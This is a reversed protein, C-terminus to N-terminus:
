QKDASLIVFKKNSALQRCNGFIRKLKIHYSLQRNGVITLTKDKKLVRYSDNFMQWAIHDTVANQQHFPPNCIIMDASNSEFGTLCDNVVFQCQKTLEPLNIAVNEQASRIAMFSEDTFSLKARPQQLLINLGLIGNGCGLDIVHQNPLAKPLYELLFRAGIDLKERAFVNAYNRIRLNTDETVWQLYQNFKDNNENDKEIQSFVLRSKKVALSTKTQGLLKEFIKITQTKINKAKDAAIFTVEKNAYKNIQRLQEDLLQKSKPIKYLILDIDDPLETLSDHLTVNDLSRKNLEANQKIGQHSIISDSVCTVKANTINLSLAGFSDNFVLVKINPQLLGQNHCHNILYEDASDWAQLSRTVQQKPFRVLYLPKNNVIFPSHM